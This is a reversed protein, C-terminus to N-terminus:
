LTPQSYGELEMVEIQELNRTCSRVVSNHLQQCFKSQCMTDCPGDATTSSRTWMWRRVRMLRSIVTLQNRTQTFSTGTTHTTEVKPCPNTCTIHLVSFEIWQTFKQLTICLFKDVHNTLFAEVADNCPLSIMTNDDDILEMSQDLFLCQLVSYLVLFQLKDM